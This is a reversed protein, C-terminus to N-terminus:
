YPFGQNPNATLAAIPHSPQKGSLRAGYNRRRAKTVTPTNCWITDDDVSSKVIVPEALRHAFFM